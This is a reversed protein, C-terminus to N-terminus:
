LQQLTYSPLCCHFLVIRLLSSEFLLSIIYLCTTVSLCYLISLLLSSPLECCTGVDHIDVRPSVSDPCRVCYFYIYLLTSHTFSSSQRSNTRIFLCEALNFLTFYPGVRAVIKKQLITNIPPANLTIAENASDATTIVNKLYRYSCCPSGNQLTSVPKRNHKM